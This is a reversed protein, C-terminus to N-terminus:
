FPAEDLLAASAPDLASVMQEVHLAEWAAERMLEADNAAAAEEVIQVPVEGRDWLPMLVSYFRHYGADGADLAAVFSRWETLQAVDPLTNWAIAFTDLSNM